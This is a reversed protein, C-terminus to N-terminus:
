SIRSLLSSRLFLVDVQLLAGAGRHQETIRLPTFGIKKFYNLYDGIEPSGINYPSIPCEALGSDTVEYDFFTSKKISILPKPRM